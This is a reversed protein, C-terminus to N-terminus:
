CSLGLKDVIARSVTEGEGSLGDSAQGSVAIRTSSCRVGKLHKSHLGFQPLTHARCRLYTKGVEDLLPIATPHTKCWVGTEFTLLSRLAIALCHSM